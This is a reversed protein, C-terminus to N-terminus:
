ETGAIIGGGLVTDGDYLVCSQGPTPARQAEDFRIVATGNEGAEVSCLQEKHRYRIKAAARIRNEPARGSIWNFDKVYVTKEFLADNETLVIRNNETDIRKVYLPIETPLGLGRHQGVTYHIIGRHRGLVNGSEDVFDGPEPRRGTYREILGAYDRDPVFCIDQSDKKRANLFGHEEAIDRVEAKSLEGLPFRTHALQEQTLTYLVYSQDKSLDKGKKLLYEGDKEEIRAYHGTAIIDFGRKRGEEYVAGFKLTRNCNICPNPTVGMEYSHIFEEIVYKQFQERFDFVYFPIELKDAIARADNIDKPILDESPCSLDGRLHMTCGGCEFEQRMLFAAVSSDVGGSMAILARM